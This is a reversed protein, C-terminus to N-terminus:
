FQSIFICHLATLYQQFSILQLSMLSCGIFGVACNLKMNVKIVKCCARWIEESSQEYFDEKPNWIKIPEVDTKVIIGNSSVLAARISSTGCDVGVFYPILPNQVDPSAM